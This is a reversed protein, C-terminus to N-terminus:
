IRCFWAKCRDSCNDPLAFISPLEDSATWDDRINYTEAIFDWQKLKDNKHELYRVPTQAKDTTVYYHNDSMGQEFWTDAEDVGTPFPEGNVDSKVTGEYKSLSNRLWDYRVAGINQTCKCCFEYDPYSIVMWNDISHLITCREGLEPAGEIGKCWIDHQGIDMDYRSYTANSDLDAM